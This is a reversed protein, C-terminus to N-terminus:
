CVNSASRLNTVAIPVPHCHERLNSEYVGGLFQPPLARAAEAAELLRSNVRMSRFPDPRRQSSRTQNSNSTQFPSQKPPCPDFLRDV